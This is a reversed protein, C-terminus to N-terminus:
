RFNGILPGPPPPTSGMPIFAPTGASIGASLGLSIAKIFLKGQDSKNMNTQTEISLESFIASEFVFPVGGVPPAGQGGFGSVSFVETNASLHLSIPLLLAEMIKSLAIGGGGTFGKMANIAVMAMLNGDTILGVGSIGIAVNGVGITQLTKLTNISGKAVAAALEEQFKQPEARPDLTKM